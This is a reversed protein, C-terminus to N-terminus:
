TSANCTFPGGSYNSIILRQENFSSLFTIITYDEIDIAGLLYCEYKQLALILSLLEKEITSYAMQHKKFKSSTYSVTHLLDDVASRQFLVGGAGSDCDDVQLIFPKSFDPSILAPDNTLFMKLQDFSCQCSDDWIFNRKLSLLNRLPLAVSSLNRCFTRYYSTMDHFRRSKKSTPVPYKLIAEVNAAKPRITGNGVIHGLYTLTARCFSTKCLNITLCAEQLGQLVMGLRELHEDWTDGTVVIDDLYAYIGELGQIILNVIRQFTSPANCMGFPMITYEYLGFPTIFASIEKANDSLEVQYYGKLLDIKTVFKANGIADIVDDVRLLPYSDKVTVTNVKRYDTCFRMSGGEKPVLLCPSAWPSKSPTALGHKLLYDVEELM